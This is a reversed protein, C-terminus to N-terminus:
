KWNNKKMEVFLFLFYLDFIYRMINQFLELIKM